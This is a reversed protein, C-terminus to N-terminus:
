SSILFEGLDRRAPRRDHDRGHPLDRAAALDDLDALRIRHPRMELLKEIRHLADLIAHQGIRVTPTM